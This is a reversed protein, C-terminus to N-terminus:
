NCNDNKIVGVTLTQNTVKPFSIPLFYFRPTKNKHSITKTNCYTSIRLNFFFTWITLSFTAITIYYIRMHWMPFAWHVAISANHRHLVQRHSTYSHTLYSFGVAAVKDGEPTEVM